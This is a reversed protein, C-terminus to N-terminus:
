KLTGKIANLYDAVVKKWEFNKSYELIEKRNNISYKRNSEIAQKIFEIDTIKQEPIVSIFDKTLDLNASSKESIVLGLGASLAEMCVLPHAESISLLILNAYETMKSYVDTKSWQGIFRNTESLKLNEGFGAFDINLEINSLLHQRKRNEIKGLYISRDPFLPEFTKQYIDTNVGNKTIFIKNPDYGFNMYNQKISESLAFIFHNNDLISKFTRWYYPEYYEYNEAWGCHATIAVKEDKLHQQLQPLLDEHQLHIFDFKEKKIESVVWNLDKTNYIRVDVGLQKLNQYYEWVLIEVAGWGPPPIQIDGACIFCMKLM